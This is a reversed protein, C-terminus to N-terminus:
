DTLTEQRTPRLEAPVSSSGVNLSRKTVLGGMCVAELKINLKLALSARFDFMQSSFCPVCLLSWSILNQGCCHRRPNVCMAFSSSM